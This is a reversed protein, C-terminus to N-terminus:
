SYGQNIVGYYSQGKPQPGDWSQPDDITPLTTTSYAWLKPGTGHGQENNGKYWLVRLTIMATPQDTGAWAVSGSRKAWATKVSIKQPPETATFELIANSWAGMVAKSSNLDISLGRTWATPITVTWKGNRVKGYRSYQSDNRDYSQQDNGDTPPWGTHIDCGPCGKVKVTIKTMAESTRLPPPEAQAPSSVLPTLLALTAAITVKAAKM